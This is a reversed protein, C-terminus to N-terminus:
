DIGGTRYNYIPKLIYLPDFRNSIYPLIDNLGRYAFPAEDLTNKTHSCYINNDKMCKNYESVTHSNAVETRKITRGSGHPLVIGPTTRGIVIGEKSNIPIAAYESNTLQAGKVVLINTNKSTYYGISSTNMNFSGIFIGNHITDINDESIDNPYDCFDWKMAKCIRYLIARRNYIAFDCLLGIYLLYDNFMRYGYDADEKGIGYRPSICATEYPENPNIKHAIDMFYKYVKMGLGRSGTHITIYYDGTDKDNDINYSKSLEIFHNGGGLTGFNSLMEEETLSNFLKDCRLAMSDTNVYKFHYLDMYEEWTSDEITNKPKVLENLVKDLKIFTDKNLKTKGIDIRNCLVGCGADPGILSPMVVHASYPYKLSLGVPGVKGPHTDPMIEIHAKRFEEKDCIMRIQAETYQEIDDRLVMASNYRGQIMKGM